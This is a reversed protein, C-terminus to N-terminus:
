FFIVVQSHQKIETPELLLIFAEKELNVLSLRKLFPHKNKQLSSLKLKKKAMSFM